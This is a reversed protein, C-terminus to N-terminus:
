ALIQTKQSRSQSEVM